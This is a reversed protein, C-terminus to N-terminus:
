EVLHPKDVGTPRTPLHIQFWRIKPSGTAPKTRCGDANVVLEGLKKVIPAASQVLTCLDIWCYSTILNSWALCSLSVVLCRSLSVVLIIVLGPRYDNWELHVRLGSNSADYENRNM